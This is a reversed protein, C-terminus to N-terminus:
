AQRQRTLVDFADDLSREFAEDYLDEPEEPQDLALSHGLRRSCSPCGMLLHRLVARREARNASGAAFRDLVEPLITHELGDLPIRLRLATAMQGTPVDMTELVNM